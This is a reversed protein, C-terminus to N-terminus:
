NGDLVIVHGTILQICTSFKCYRYSLVADYETAYILGYWYSANYIDICKTTAMNTPGGIRHSCTLQRSATYHWPLLRVPKPNRAKTDATTCKALMEDRVNQLKTSSVSSGCITSLTVTFASSSQWWKIPKAFNACVTSTRWEWKIIPDYPPNIPWM